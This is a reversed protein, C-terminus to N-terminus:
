FALIYEQNTEFKGIDWYEETNYIMFSLYDYKDEYSNM